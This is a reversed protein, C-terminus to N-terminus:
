SSVSQFAEPISLDVSRTCLDAEAGGHDFRNTCPRYGKTSSCCSDRTEASSAAGIKDRHVSDCAECPIAGDHHRAAVNTCSRDENGSDTRISSDTVSNFTFADRFPIVTGKPDM